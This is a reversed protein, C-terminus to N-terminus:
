GFLERIILDLDKKQHIAVDKLITHLTGVRLPKHLPITLDHHRGNIDASLRQHSGTQHDISYGYRRLLRALTDGDVDRPLKM